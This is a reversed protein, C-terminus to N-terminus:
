SLNLARHTLQLARKQMISQMVLVSELNDAIMEEALVNVGPPDDLICTNCFSM